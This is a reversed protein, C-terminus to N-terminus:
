RRCLSDLWGQAPLIGLCNGYLHNRSRGHGVWVGTAGAAIIHSDGNTPSVPPVSVSRSAVTMQVILDLIKLAENHTVHKQAQSPQILPLSQITTTDPM